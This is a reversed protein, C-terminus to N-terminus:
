GIGANTRARSKLKQRCAAAATTALVEVSEDPPRVGSKGGSDIAAATHRYAELAEEPEGVRELCVALQYPALWSDPDLFRAARLAQIADDFKGLQKLLLGRALHAAAELPSTVIPAELVKLADQLHGTRELVRSRALATSTAPSPTPPAPVRTRVLRASSMLPTRLPSSSSLQVLPVSGTGFRPDNVSMWLLPAEIAGLLLFGGDRCAAALRSIASIADAHEFYMLANRCVVADQQVVLPPDTAFNHRAFRVCDRIARGVQFRGDGDLEFHRRWIDPVRSYSADRAVRLSPQHFDTAIIRPSFGAEVLSIAIAYAEQGTSCGASWVSVTADARQRRLPALAAVLTDIAEQERAFWTTGIFVRDFFRERLIGDELRRTPEDIGLEDLARAIVSKMTAPLQIGTHTRITECVAAWTADTVVELRGKAPTGRHSIDLRGGRLSM